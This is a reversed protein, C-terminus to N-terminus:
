TKTPETLDCSNYYIQGVMATLVTASWAIPLHTNSKNPCIKYAGNCFLPLLVESM